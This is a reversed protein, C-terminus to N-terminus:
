SKNSFRERLDLIMNASTTEFLKAPTTSETAAYWHDVAGHIAGRTEKFVVARGHVDIVKLFVTYMPIGNTRITLQSGSMTVPLELLVNEDPIAAFRRDGERTFVMRRHRTRHVLYAVVLLVGGAVTMPWKWAEIEPPAGKVVAVGGGVALLLGIVAIFVVLGQGRGTVVTLEHEVVPAPMANDRYASM